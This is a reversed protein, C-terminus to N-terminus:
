SLERVPAELWVGGDLENRHRYVGFTTLGQKALEADIL